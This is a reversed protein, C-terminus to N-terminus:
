LAAEYGCSRIERVFRKPDARYRDIIDNDEMFTEVIRTYFAVDEVFEDPILTELINHCNRCLWVTVRNWRIDIADFHKRHRRPYVHHRTM